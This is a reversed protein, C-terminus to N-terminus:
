PETFHKQNYMPEKGGKIIEPIKLRRIKLGRIDESKVTILM